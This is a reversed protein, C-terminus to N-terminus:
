EQLEGARRSEGERYYQLIRACDGPALLGLALVGGVAGLELTTYLLAGSGVLLAAHRGCAVTYDALRKVDGSSDKVAAVRPHRVVEGILGPELVVHTYKPIHYVILPVRAAEAVGLYYDRLAAPALLAGFYAPPHLLAADAGAEALRNLQRAATRTSEGSVGAVLPVDPPVLDRAFGVLRLKEEEELLVGEGTSGFLVIGDIPQQLWRRLNERFSVPAIEGSVPDYPTTVPLLIGSFM